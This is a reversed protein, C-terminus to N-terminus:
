KEFLVYTLVPYFQTPLSINLKREFIKNIWVQTYMNSKAQRDKQGDM